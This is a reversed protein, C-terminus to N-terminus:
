PGSTMIIDGKTSEMIALLEDQEKEPVEFDNLTAIFDKIMADWEQQTINLHAHLVQIM